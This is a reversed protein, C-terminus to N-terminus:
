SAARRRRLVADLDMSGTDVEDLIGMSAYRSAGPAAAPAVSAPAVAAVAVAAVPGAAVPAAAVPGSAVSGAAVPAVARLPVPVPAPPAVEAAKREFEARAAARRLEAAADV